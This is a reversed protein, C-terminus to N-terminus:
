PELEAGDGTAIRGPELVTAYIRSVPGAEHHILDFARDTFWRANQSCPVAYSSAECRVTGLRLRVGPRVRAWDLGRLTVNEGASGYGIPHGAAALRDIVGADWLCLAQWPRGHHRRTAQVDGVVGGWDVDVVPRALKPVGGGSRNLQVVTGSSAGGFVGADRMADTLLRLGLWASGLEDAVEAETWTGSTLCQDAIRGAAALRDDPAGRGIPQESANAIRDATADAWADALERVPAPLETLGFLVERWLDALDGFTSRADMRTFEYPGVRYM